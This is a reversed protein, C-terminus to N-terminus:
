IEEPRESDKILKRSYMEWLSAHGHLGFEFWSFKVFFFAGECDQSMQAHSLRKSLIEPSGTFNGIM